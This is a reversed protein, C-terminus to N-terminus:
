SEKVGLKESALKTLKARVDEDLKEYEARRQRYLAMTQGILIDRDSPPEGHAEFEEQFVESEENADPNELEEMRKQRDRLKKAAKRGSRDMFILQMIKKFM